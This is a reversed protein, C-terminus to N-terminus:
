YLTKDTKNKWAAFSQTKDVCDCQEIAISRQPYPKCIEDAIFSDDFGAAAADTSSAAYVVRSIRAWYISSMCMPCPECSAYLICDTLNFDAIHTCADRIAMVEAHATPDNILTVQNHGRGIINGDKVIIAGFPGGNQTVSQTALQIAQQIFFNDQQKNM